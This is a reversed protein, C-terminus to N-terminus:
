FHLMACIELKRSSLDPVQLLCGAKPTLFRVGSTGLNLTIKNFVVTSICHREALFLEQAVVTNIEHSKILFKM